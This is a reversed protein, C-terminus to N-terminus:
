QQEERRKLEAELDELSVNPPMTQELSLDEGRATPVAGAATYKALFNLSDAYTQPLPKNSVKQNALYRLMDKGQPNTMMWALKESSAASGSVLNVTDQIASVAKGVTWGGTVAATETTIGQLQASISEAAGAPKRTITELDKILVKAQAQEGKTPFFFDNLGISGQQSKQNIVTRLSSLLAEPNGQSATVIEDMQTKRLSAVIDPRTNSLINFMVVRETPTAQALRQVSETPDLASPNDKMFYKVFPTEAYADLEKLGDRFQDRAKQLQAAGRTGSSAAVDLDDKFGNLVQRAINKVTGPAVGKFINDTGGPMSYEGTKAAKGWSELNKQLEDITLKQAQEPIVVAPKGDAGVILSPEAQKTMSGKLDRLKDAIARLEAPMKDSSYLAIQNDLTTNLNDTGFIPDNGAVKKAEGFNVRNQARFKNVLRNNQFNVADIVGKNIDTATLNQNAGFQQIKNAFDEATNAQNLNFQKFIPAGGETTSVAKEQRLAAESGTRQGSTMPIGTEASVSPTGTEPVNRRVRTAAGSFLGPLLGVALQGTPSEPFLYKGAVNSLGGVLGATGTAVTGVVPGALYSPAAFAMAPAAGEGFRYLFQEAGSRPEPPIQFTERAMTTPSASMGFPAYQGAAQLPISAVEAPFAVLGTAGSKAGGVLARGGSVIQDAISREDRERRALEAELEELTAM